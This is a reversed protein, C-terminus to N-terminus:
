SAGASFVYQSEKSIPRRMFMFAIRVFLIQEQNVSTHWKPDAHVKIRARARLLKTRTRIIYSGIINGERSFIRENDVMALPLRM